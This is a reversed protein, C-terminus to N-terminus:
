PISIRSSKDGSNLSSNLKSSKFLNVTDKELWFM